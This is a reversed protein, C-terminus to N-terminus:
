INSQIIVAKSNDVQNLNVIFNRFDNYREPGWEGEKIEISRKVELATLAGEKIKKVSIIAHGFESAVVKAKPLTEVEYGEPLYYLFVDEYISGRSIKLPLIRNDDKEPNLRYPKLFGLPLLFRNGAKIALRTGSFDVNEKFQINRRDNNLHISEFNLNNFKGWEERYEKELDEQDKKERLYYDEYHIGASVRELSAKFGGKEDLWIKAEKKLVNEKNLYKKTKILEGGESTVRLVYRNDTFSGLYNFPIDQNTCELWINNNEEDPINLIVHNGQMQPFEPDLDKIQQNGNVVSYYSEIGQTKLLAMTYNTLGKCDGYGLRDVEDARAPEWGGIGLMVAIYRTNQQVYDYIIRAKEEISEANETLRSIKSVTSQSIKDHELIFSDYMWKGYTDWDQAEGAVGELEFKDTALLLRPAIDTFAPSLIEYELAPINRAEYRLRLESVEKSFDINELNREEHRFPLNEPNLFEVSSKEVSVDYGVLPYWDPLFASNVSEVESIYEVTYPYKRPTYDLYSLRNDSFLVFSEYNSQNKFDRKKFKKIENGSEDYIIAMQEEIDIGDDYNEYADVFRDGDENMVTVVRRKYIVLKNVSKLELILESNRIIADSSKLLEPSM